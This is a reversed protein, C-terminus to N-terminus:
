GACVAPEALARLEEASPDRTCDSCLPGVPKLSAKGSSQGWKCKKLGAEAVRAELDHIYRATAPFFTEIDQMEGPKAFAGCLCEGSMHLLAAVPNEPINQEIRYDILDSKTYDLLPAVWVQAGERKVYEVNGMRRLSESKRVGTILMVRDKFHTKAERTVARLAREKLNIYMFRHAGPGPFGHKLVLSEYTEGPPHKEILPIGLDKCYSRVFERTDQIGIGTNIHVAADCLGATWVRHLLGTSDNGGSFLVYKKVPKYEEIASEIVERWDRRPGSSLENEQEVTLKSM